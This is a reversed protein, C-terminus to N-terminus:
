RLREPLESELCLDKVRLQLFSQTYFDNDELEYCLAFAEHRIL